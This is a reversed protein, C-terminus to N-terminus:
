LVDTHTNESIVNSGAHTKQKYIENLFRCFIVGPVKQEIQSHGVVSEFHADSQCNNLFAIIHKYKVEHIWNLQQTNIQNDREGGGM